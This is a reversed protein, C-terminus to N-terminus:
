RYDLLRSIKATSSFQGLVLPKATLLVTCASIRPIQKYDPNVSDMVRNYHIGPIWLYTFSTSSALPLTHCSKSFLSKFYHPPQSTATIAEYSM